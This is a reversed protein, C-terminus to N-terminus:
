KVSTIRWSNAMRRRSRMKSARAPEQKDLRQKHRGKRKRPRDRGDEKPRQNTSRHTGVRRSAHERQTESGGCAMTVRCADCREHQLSHHVKTLIHPLSLSDSLSLARTRSNQRKRGTTKFHASTELLTNTKRHGNMQVRVALRPRTRSTRATVKSIRASEKM